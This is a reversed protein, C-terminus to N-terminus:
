RHFIEYGDYGQNGKTERCLGPVVMVVSVMKMMARM